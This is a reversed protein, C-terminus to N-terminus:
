DPEYYNELPNGEDDMPQVTVGVTIEQEGGGLIVGRIPSVDSYDRGWALVIHAFYPVQNNTPDFDFWGFGPIYSSIWAHSADAGVLRPEGPPPDTRLYGSVYRAPLGISRLCGIMLHAFDQCVGRRTELVTAIPTSVDTSLPVYQFERNIRAMLDLLGEMVPRNPPFSVMAYDHLEHSRVVHPSDFVYEFAELSAPALDAKLLNRVYEWNPTVGEEPLLPWNIRVNSEVTVDLQTHPQEINFYTTWNGFFDSRETFIDPTPNIDHRVDEVEQFKYVRPVLHARNQCMTVPTAYTYSTTHRVSFRM